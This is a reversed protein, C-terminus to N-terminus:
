GLRQLGDGREQLGFPKSGQDVVQRAAALFRVGALEGAEGRRRRM